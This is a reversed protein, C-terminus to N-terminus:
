AGSVGNSSMLFLCFCFYRRYFTWCRAFNLYEHFPFKM